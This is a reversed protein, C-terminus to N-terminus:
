GVNLTTPSGPLGPDRSFFMRWPGPRRKGLTGRQKKIRPAQCLSGGLKPGNQFASLDNEPCRKNSRLPFGAPCWSKAPGRFFVWGGDTPGRSPARRSPGHQFPRWLGRQAHQGRGGRSPAGLGKHLGVLKSNSLLSCGPNIPIFPIPIGVFFVMPSPKGQTLGFSIM